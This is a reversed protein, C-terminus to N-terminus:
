NIGVFFDNVFFLIGLAFSILILNREMSILHPMFLVFGIFCLVFEVMRIEYSQEVVELEFLRYWHDSLYDSFSINYDLRHYVLDLISQKKYSVKV